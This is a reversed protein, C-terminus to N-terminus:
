REKMDREIKEAYTTHMLQQAEIEKRVLAKDKPHCYKFRHLLIKLLTCQNHLVQAEMPTIPAGRKPSYFKVQIDDPEADQGPKKGRHVGDHICWAIMLPLAFIAAIFSLLFRVVEHLLYGTEEVGEPLKREADILQKCCVICTAPHSDQM